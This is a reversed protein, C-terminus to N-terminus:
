TLDNVALLTGGYSYSALNVLLLVVVGVVM